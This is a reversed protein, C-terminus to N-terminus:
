AQLDLGRTATPRCATAHERAASGRGGARLLCVVAIGTPLLERSWNRGRCLWLAWRDAVVLLGFVLTWTLLISTYIETYITNPYQNHLEGGWGVERGGSTGLEDL